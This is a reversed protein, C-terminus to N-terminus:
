DSQFPSTKKCLQCVGNAQILVEAVVDPNRRFLTVQTQYSVPTTNASSLRKLRDEAILISSALVQKEFDDAINGLVDTIEFFVSDGNSLFKAVESPLYFEGGSTLRYTNIHVFNELYVKISCVDRDNLQLEDRIKKPVSWQSFQARRKGDRKICCVKWRM